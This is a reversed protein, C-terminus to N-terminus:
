SVGGAGAGAGEGRVSLPAARAALMDQLAFPLYLILCVILALVGLIPVYWPWPPLLDLPSPTYPKHAIFLYNSGIALNLAFVPIAYLALGVMVRLVSRWTPRMGEIVTMYVAAVVMAGHGAFTLLFRVDPFAYPIEPTLLAQTAGGIGFFYCLEYATRNRTLLMVMSLYSTITCLHLPLQGQITWGDSLIALANWGIESIILVGLLAMRARRRATEGPCRWVFLAAIILAVTLISLWHSPTFPRFPEDAWAPFATHIM